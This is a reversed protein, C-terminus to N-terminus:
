FQVLKKKAFIRNEIISRIEQNRLTYIIPNLLPTVVTYLLSLFKNLGLSSRSSPIVYITILTLYYICVVMLHSSCTSFAKQKGTTSPIKLIAIVIQIYTIIIFVFPFVAIPISFVFIQLKVFFVDSCSHELVPTLDCYYHDIDTSGCFQLSCIQIIVILTSLFSFAWSIIALQLCFRFNMFSSYRLPNCIALYRDYSMVTLFISEANTSVSFLYLQIICRTVSVTIGETLTMHLLKPIITTTFLMESSALQSLFFYMPTHLHRHILVTIPLFINVSLTAIHTVLLFIFFVIKLSHLNQFGLLHFEMIFTKNEEQM